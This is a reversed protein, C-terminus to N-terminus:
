HEMPRNNCISYYMSERNYFFKLTNLDIGQTSDEKKWVKGLLILQVELTHYFSEMVFNGCGKWQGGIFFLIVTDKKLLCNVSSM